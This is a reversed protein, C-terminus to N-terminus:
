VNAYMHLELVSKSGEEVARSILVMFPNLYIRVFFVWVCISLPLKGTATAGFHAQLLSM